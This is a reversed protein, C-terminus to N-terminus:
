LGFDMAGAPTRQYSEQLSCPTWKIATRDQDRTKFTARAEEGAIGCHRYSNRM